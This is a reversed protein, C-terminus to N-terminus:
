VLEILLDTLEEDLKNVKAGDGAALAEKLQSLKSEIKHRDSADLSPLLKEARQIVPKVGKYLESQEWNSNIREMAAAVEAQSLVGIQQDIIETIKKGTSLIQAEIQLTGNIDYRITVEIMEKGQAGSPIGSLEFEGLLLNDKVKPSEGQYIGLTVETQNDDVTYYVKSKTVPITSNRPILVDFFGPVMQGGIREVVDTGLSHPCVDTVMLGSASSIDGSKIGAQVAAGLAVAEDPNLDKRPTKYFKRAVLEQILPIRTSGGVLLVEDIQTVSLKADALAKDVEALTSEAMAMILKEFEARTVEEEISLPAGDKMAIFPLSVTASAQTSLLKKVRETELKLRWRNIQDQKASGTHLLDLQHTNRVKEAVWEALANDFDMGGLKNNGASSKVELIGEFLEVVSVDFTGGGLDFVLIHQEKDMNAMGYAIAAATPENIIREVRLGAMEGAKQTAKRQTDTFYAPVTIVAETVPEGLKQEAYLKLEKLILASVEEPRFQQGALTIQEETGMLRKVEIVTRDPISILSSKAHSGVIIEDRMGICVASPTTREGDRNEIIEARGDKYYAVASNTTGLDIGIIAM